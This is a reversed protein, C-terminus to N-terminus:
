IRFKVFDLLFIVTWCVTRVSHVRILKKMLEASNGEKNMKLHLPVAYMFTLIVTVVMGAWQLAHIWGPAYFLNLSHWIGQVVMPPLTLVVIFARYRVYSFVAEKDPRAFAPYVWLQVVWAVVFLLANSLHLIVPM